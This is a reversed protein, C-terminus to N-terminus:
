RRIEELLSDIREQRGRLRKCEEAMQGFCRQLRGCNETAQWVLEFPHQADTSTPTSLSNRSAAHQSRDTGTISSAMSDRGDLLM